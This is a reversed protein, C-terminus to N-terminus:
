KVSMCLQSIVTVPMHWTKFENNNYNHNDYDDDDDDGDVSRIVPKREEPVEGWWEPKLNWVTASEKNHAIDRTCSNM